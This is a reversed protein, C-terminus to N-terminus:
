GFPPLQVLWGRVNTTARETRTTTTLYVVRV